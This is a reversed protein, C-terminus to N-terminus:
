KVYYLFAIKIDDDQKFYSIKEESKRQFGFSGKRKKKVALWMEHGLHTDRLHVPEGHLKAETLLARLDFSVSGAQQRWKSLQPYSSASYLSSAGGCVNQKRYM